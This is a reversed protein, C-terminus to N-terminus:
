LNIGVYKNKDKDFSPKNDELHVAQPILRILEPGEVRLHEGFKGEPAFIGEIPVVFVSATTWSGFKELKNQNLHFNQYHREGHHSKIKRQILVTILCLM